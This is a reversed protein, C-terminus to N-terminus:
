VGSRPDRSALYDRICLVSCLDAPLPSDGYTTTDIGAIGIRFWGVASCEKTEKKCHNCVLIVYESM